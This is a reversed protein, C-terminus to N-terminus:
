VLEVGYQTSMWKEFKKWNLLGYGTDNNKEHGLKEMMEKIEEVTLKKGIKKEMAERMLVSLGAAHPTAMSTGSIPSFRSVTSDGAYDLTGIIGSDINVGPDIVDPKIAGWNTPGRSSFDALEGKIPDWAGVTLVQPLCGPSGVTNSKPGSNGAAVVAIIKEEKVKQFVKYFPDDEPKDEESDGGLSLSIIDSGKDMAFQVAAIIDSTLGTGIVYGLCKIGWLPGCRPAIGECFIDKGTKRSLRKDKKRLGGICSICWEGHGNKDKYQGEQESHFRMRRNQQHVRSGGTDPVSVTIGEGKFGQRNARDGGILAKTCSTTTIKKRKVEYVCDDPVTQLIEMPKDPYIREIRPDQALQFVSGRGLYTAIYNFEPIARFKTMPQRAEILRPLRFTRKRAKGEQTVLSKRRVLEKVERFRNPKSEVIYPYAIKERVRREALPTLTEVM